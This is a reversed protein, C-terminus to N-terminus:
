AKRAVFLHNLGYLFRTHVCNVLGADHPLAQVKKPSMGPLEGEAM